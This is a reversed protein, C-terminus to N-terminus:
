AGVRRVRARQTGVLGAVFGSSKHRCANCLRHHAGESEFGTGCCLCARERPRQHAPLKAIEARLFQEAEARSKFLPSVGRLGVVQFEANQVRLVQPGSVPGRPMM